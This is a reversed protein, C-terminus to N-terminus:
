KPEFIMSHPSAFGNLATLLATVIGTSPDLTGVLGSVASGQTASTFITGKPYTAEVYYIENYAADAIWLIGSTGSTWSTWVSDDLNDGVGLRALMQNSQGPNKVFLLQADGESALVLDNQSDVSESDPDAINLTGTTKTNINYGTANGYAIPTVAVQTGVLKAEVIIAKNNVGNPLLTPSSCSLFAGGNIFAIDDYGGGHPQTPPFTYVKNQLTKPDVVYLLPQRPPTGNLGDNNAAAWIQNTYPNMRMGDVGGPLNVTGVLTGRLDYKALTSPAPSTDSLNQYIV